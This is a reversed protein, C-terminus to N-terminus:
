NQYSEIEIKIVKILHYILIEIRLCIKILNLCKKVINSLLPNKQVAPWGSGPGFGALGVGIRALGFGVRVRGVRGGPQAQTPQM